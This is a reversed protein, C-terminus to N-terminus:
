TEIAKKMDNNIYANNNSLLIQYDPKRCSVSDQNENGFVFLQINM